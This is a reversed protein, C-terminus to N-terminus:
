AEKAKYDIYALQAAARAVSVSKLGPYQALLLESAIILADAKVQDPTKATGDLLTPYKAKIGAWVADDIGAPTLTTVIDAVVRITPLAKGVHELAKQADSAAKGSRFYGSLFGIIRKLWGM